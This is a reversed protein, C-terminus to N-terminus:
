KGGPNLGNAREAVQMIAERAAGWGVAGDHVHSETIVRKATICYDGREIVKPISEILNGRYRRCRSTNWIESNEPNEIKM